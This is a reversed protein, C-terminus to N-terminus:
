NLLYCPNPNSTISASYLANCRAKFNAGPDNRLVMTRKESDDVNVLAELSGQSPYESVIKIEFNENELNPSRDEYQTYAFASASAVLIISIILGPKTNM